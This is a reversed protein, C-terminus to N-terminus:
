NFVPVAWFFPTEDELCRQDSTVLDVVCFVNDYTLTTLYVVRTGNASVDFGSIPVQEYALNAEGTALDVLYLVSGGHEDSIAENSFIIIKEDDLVWRPDGIWQRQLDLEQLVENEDRIIIKTPRSDGSVYAFRSGDLSWAPSHNVGPNNTINTIRGTSVDLLFIDDDYDRTVGASYLLKTSDPSWSVHSGVYVGFTKQEFEWTRQDWLYLNSPHTEDYEVIAITRADPSWRYGYPHTLQLWNTIRLTRLSFIVLRWDTTLYSIYQGDPSFEVTTPEIRGSDIYIYSESDPNLVKVGEPCYVPGECDIQMAYAILDTHEDQSDVPVACLWVLCALIMQWQLKM